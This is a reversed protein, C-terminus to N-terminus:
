FSPTVSARWARLPLRLVSAGGLMGPLPFLKLFTEKDVDVKSHSRKALDQVCV